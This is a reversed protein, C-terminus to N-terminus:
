YTTTSSTHISLLSTHNVMCHVYFQVYLQMHFWERSNICADTHRKTHERHLSCATHGRPPARTPPLWAAVVLLPVVIAGDDFAFLLFDTGDAVDGGGDM